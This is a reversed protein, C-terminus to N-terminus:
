AHVAMEEMQELVLRRIDSAAVKGSPSMPFDTMFLIHRPIKFASLHVSLEERVTVASLEAESCPIICACVQEGYLEDPVGLVFADEVGPLRLLANEIEAPAIKEGGRSIIRNLRGGIMLLNGPGFKGYDGSRYWGDETFQEPSEKWYRMVKHSRILIEGRQDIKVEVGQELKGGFSYDGLEMEGPEIRGGLFSRRSLLRHLLHSLAGPRKNVFCIGTAVIGAESSGYSLMLFLLRLGSDRYVKDLLVRNMPASTFTIGRLSSLDFQARKPSALMQQVMFPTGALVTCREHEIATLAQVPNYHSLMVMRLCCTQLSIFIASFGGLHYLPLLNLVSFRKAIRDTLYASFKGSRGTQSSFGEKGIFSRTSRLVGKPEGSTGSTYLLILPDEDRVAACASDLDLDNVAARRDLLQSYTEFRGSCDFSNEGADVGVVVIRQPLWSPDEGATGAEDVIERLLSPYHIRHGETGAMMLVPRTQRLYERVEDKRSYANLPVAVAGICAAAFMGLIMEMRGQMLLAIRDGKQVGVGLFAKALQRTERWLGLWSYSQGWEPYCYATDKPFSVARGYLLAPITNRNYRRTSRM